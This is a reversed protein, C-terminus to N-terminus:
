HLLPYKEYFEKAVQKWDVSVKDDVNLNHIIQVFKFNIKSCVKSYKDVRSWCEFMMGCIKRFTDLAVPRICLILFETSLLVSFIIWWLGMMGCRNYAVGIQAM